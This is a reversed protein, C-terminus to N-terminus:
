RTQRARMCDRYAARYAPDDAKSADMGKLFPDPSQTIIAGSPDTKEGPAAAPAKPGDTKGGAVPIGGHAPLERPEREGDPARKALDPGPAGPLRPLASAGTRDAAQKNCGAIDSLTPEAAGAGAPLLAAAVIALITVRTRKMTIM